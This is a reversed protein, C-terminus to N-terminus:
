WEVIRGAPEEVIFFRRHLQDMTVPAVDALVRLELLHAQREAFRTEPAAVLPVDRGVIRDAIVAASPLRAAGIFFFSRLSTLEIASLPYRSTRSSSSSIAKAREL